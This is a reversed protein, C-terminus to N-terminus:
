LKHTPNKGDLGNIISLIKEASKHWSFEKARKLGEVICKMRLDHEDYIKKMSNALEEINNPDVLIGAKDVVEPLSSVKSTIVPCGSQMAELVPLGFGEYLSPFVLAIASNYYKVLDEEKIYGKFHVYEATQLENLTSFIKSFKWGRAGIIVLHLQDKKKKNPDILKAHAKLLTEINKRPELTGVFLFFQKPLNEEEMWAKLPKNLPHYDNSVAPYVVEVQRPKLQFHSILDQKTNNSVSIIQDAKNIAAKLTLKEIFGAKFNHNQPFLLAILDHIMIISKVSKPIMAPIIYSSPALFVDAKINKLDRAVRIHWLLGSSKIQRQEANKFELFDKQPDRTYLIYKNQSDLQLLAKVLQYTYWGKGAKNGLTSRIDIAIKMFCILLWCLM